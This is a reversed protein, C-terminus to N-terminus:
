SLYSIVGFKVDVSVNYKKQLKEYYPQFKTKFSQITKEIKNLTIEGVVIDEDDSYSMLMGNSTNSILYGDQVFFSDEDLGVENAFEYFDFDVVKNVTGFEGKSGCTPCFVNSEKMGHHKICGVKSCRYVNVAMMGEIKPLKVYAGVYTYQNVGM